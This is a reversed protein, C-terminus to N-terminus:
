RNREEESATIADGLGSILQDFGMTVVGPSAIVVYARDTKLEVRLLAERLRRKARNRMVASGVRRSAVIGVQPIGKEGVACIM